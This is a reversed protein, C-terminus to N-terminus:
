QGLRERVHRGERRWARVAAGVAQSYSSRDFRFPGFSMPVAGNEPFYDSFDSWVIQDQDTSVGLTFAQWTPLYTYAAVGSRHWVGVVVSEDEDEFARISARGDTM